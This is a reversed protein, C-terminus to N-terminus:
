PHFRPDGGAGFPASLVLARGAACVGTLLAVVGSPLPGRAVAPDTAASGDNVAAGGPRIM